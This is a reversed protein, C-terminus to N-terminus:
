IRSQVLPNDGKRQFAALGDPDTPNVGLIGGDSRHAFAKNGQELHLQVAIHLDSAAHLRRKGGDTCSPLVHYGSWGDFFAASFRKGAVKTIVAISKIM